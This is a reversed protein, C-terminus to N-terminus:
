GGIHGHMDVFGPLVYMGSLDMERGGSLPPRDAPDVPAGPSGVPVIDAIRDQEIVIDVPGMPPAGPGAIVTVGRRLPGPSPAGGGARPPAKPISRDKNGRTSPGSAAAPSPKGKEAAGAAGALAAAAAGGLLVLCLTPLARSWPISKMRPEKPVTPDAAADK